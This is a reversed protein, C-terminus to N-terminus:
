NEKGQFAARALALREDRSLGGLDVVPAPSMTGDSSTHDIRETFMGLHKGIDALSARKDVLKVKRIVGSMDGGMEMTEIVAVAAAAEDTWEQVPKMTGDANYLTRLDFFAMRAYQTLVKDATIETRNARKAMANQIAQSVSTKQLLEAGIRYATKQSYGARIAARTANLDILYEAAFAAQKPTLGKKRKAPAKIKPRPAM